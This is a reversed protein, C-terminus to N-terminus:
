KEKPRFVLVPAPTRRVVDDAVCGWVLKSLGGRGHTALAVV